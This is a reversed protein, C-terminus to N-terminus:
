LKKPKPESLSELKSLTTHLDVHEVMINGINGLGISAGWGSPHGELVDGCIKCKVKMVRWQGASYIKNGFEDTDRVHVPEGFVETSVHEFFDAGSKVEGWPTKM